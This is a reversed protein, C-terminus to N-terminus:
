SHTEQTQNSSQTISHHLLYGKTTLEQYSTQDWFKPWNSELKLAYQMSESEEDNDYELRLSMYIGAEHDHTSLCFNFGEPPNGFQRILQAKLADGEMYMQSLDEGANTCPEESPTIEREIYDRSNFDNLIFYPFM